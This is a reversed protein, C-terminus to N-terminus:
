TEQCNLNDITIGFTELDELFATSPSKISLTQGNEQSTKRASLIVQLCLAGLRKVNSADLDISNNSNQHIEAALPQAERIDLSNALVINTQDSM